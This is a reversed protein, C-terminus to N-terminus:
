GGATMPICSTVCYRKHIECPPGLPCCIFLVLLGELRNLLSSQLRQHSAEVHLGATRPLDLRLVIHSCTSLLLVGFYM